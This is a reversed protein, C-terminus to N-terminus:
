EIRVEQLWADRLRVEDKGLGMSARRVCSLLVITEEGCARMM